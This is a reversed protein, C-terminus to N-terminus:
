FNYNALVAESAHVKNTVNNAAIDVQNKAENTKDIYGTVGLILASALIVIIALVLVLELLTFGKPIVRRKCTKRM